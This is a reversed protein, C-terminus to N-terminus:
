KIKLNNISFINYSIGAGLYPSLGSKSIGYGAQLGFSIRSNRYETKTDHITITTTTPYIVLYELQPKYGSVVAKYVSDKEYVKQEIPVEAIVTDHQLHWYETHLTDRRVVTIYKPVPKDVYETDTVTITDRHEIIEAPLRKGRGVFFGFCFFAIIGIISILKSLSNM